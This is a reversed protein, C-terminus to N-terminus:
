LDLAGQGVFRAPNEHRLLAMKMELGYFYGRLEGHKGIVRHCPVVIPIPNNRNAMGVARVAKPRGIQEAIESYYMTQGYPINRVREWVLSYFDPAGSWDLPFNFARLTGQCYAELQRRCVAVPHDAPLADSVGQEDCRRIRQVGLASGRIELLGFPSNLYAHALM